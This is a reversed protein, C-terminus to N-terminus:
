VNCILTGLSLFLGASELHPGHALMQPAASSSAELDASLQEGATRWREVAM